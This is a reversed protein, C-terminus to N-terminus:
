LFDIYVRGLRIEPLLIGMRIMIFTMMTLKMHIKFFDIVEQRVFEWESFTADDSIKSMITFYSM